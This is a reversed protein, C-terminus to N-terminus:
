PLWQYHAGTVRLGMIQPLHLSSHHHLCLIERVDIATEEGEPGIHHHNVTPAVMGPPMRQLPVRESPFGQLTTPGPSKGIPM